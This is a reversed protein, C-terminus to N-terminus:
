GPTDSPDFGALIALLPQTRTQQVWQTISPTQNHIMLLLSGLMSSPDRPPRREVPSYLSHLLPQVPNFNLSTVMFLDELHAQLLTQKETSNLYSRLHDQVCHLYSVIPM